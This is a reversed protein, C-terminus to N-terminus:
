LQLGEIARRFDSITGDNCLDVGPIDSLLSRSDTSFDCGPRHVRILTVVAGFAASFLAAELAFGVDPVVYRGPGHARIRAVAQRAFFDSGWEPRVYREALSIYIERPTLGGLRAQPIDKADDPPADIGWLAHAADKLPQSLRVIRGGLALAATDKGARPAGNLLLVRM